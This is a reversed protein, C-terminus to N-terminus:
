RRLIGVHDLIGQADPNAFLFKLPGRCDLNKARYDTTEAVEERLISVLSQSLTVSCHLRILTTM